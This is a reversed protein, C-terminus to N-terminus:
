SSLFMTCRLIVAIHFSHDEGGDLLLMESATERERERETACFVRPYCVRHENVTCVGCLSDVERV